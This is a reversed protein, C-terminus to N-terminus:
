IQVWVGPEELRLTVEHHDVAGRATSVRRDPHDLILCKPTITHREFYRGATAEVVYVAPIERASPQDVPPYDMGSVHRTYLVLVVTFVIWGVAGNVAAAAVLGAFAGVVLGAFFNDM